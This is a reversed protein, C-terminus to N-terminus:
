RIRYVPITLMVSQSTRKIDTLFIVFIYQRLHRYRVWNTVYSPIWSRHCWISYIVCIWSFNMGTTIALASLFLTCCIWDWIELSLADVKYQWPVAPTGVWKSFHSSHALVPIRSSYVPLGQGPGNHSQCLIHPFSPLPCNQKYSISSLDFEQLTTMLNDWKEISSTARPFAEMMRRDQVKRHKEAIRLNEKTMGRNETFACEDEVVDYLWLLDDRYSVVIWKREKWWGLHSCILLGLSRLAMPNPLM